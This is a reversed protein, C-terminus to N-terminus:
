TIARCKEGSVKPCILPNGSCNGAIGAIGGIITGAGGCAGDICGGATGEPPIGGPTGEGPPM